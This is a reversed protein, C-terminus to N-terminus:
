SKVTVRHKSSCIWSYFYCFLGPTSKNASPPALVAQPHPFPYPWGKPKASQPTHTNWLVIEVDLLGFYGCNMSRNTLKQLTMTNLANSVWVAVAVSACYSCPNASPLAIGLLRASHLQSAGHISPPPALATGPVHVFVTVVGCEM